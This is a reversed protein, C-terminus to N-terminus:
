SMMNLSDNGKLTSFCIDIWTFIMKPKSANIDDIESRESNMTKNKRNESLNTWINRLLKYICLLKM